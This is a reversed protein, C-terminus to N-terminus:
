TESRTEADLEQDEIMERLNKRKRHRGPSNANTGWSDLTLNDDSMTSAATSEGSSSKELPWLVRRHEWPLPRFTKTWVPLAEHLLFQTALMADSESAPRKIGTFPVLSSRYSVLSGAATIKDPVTSSVKTALDFLVATIEESPLAQPRKNKTLIKSMNEGFLFSGLQKSLASDIGGTEPTSAEQPQEENEDNAEHIAGELFEIVQKRWIEDHSALRLLLEDGDVPDEDNSDGTAQSGEDGSEDEEEEAVKGFNVPLSASDLVYKRRTSARSYLSITSNWSRFSRVDLGRDVDELCKSLAKAGLIARRGLEILEALSQTSMHLQKSQVDVHISQRLLGSYHDNWGYFESAFLERDTMRETALRCSITDDLPVDKKGLEMEAQSPLQASGQDDKKPSTVKREAIPEAEKPDDFLPMGSL